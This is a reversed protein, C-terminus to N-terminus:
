RTLKLEATVATAPFYITGVWTQGSNNTSMSITGNVGTAGYYDMALYQGDVQGNGEATKQNLLNYEYYALNVGEQSVMLISVKQGNLYLSWEGALDFEYQESGQNRNEEFDPEGVTGSAMATDEDLFDTAVNGSDDIPYTETEPNSCLGVLGIFVVFGGLVWLYNKAWWSKPKAVPPSFPRPNPQPQPKPEPIKTIIKELVKTLEGVDYNWRSSSLEQAHKLSLEKLDEPLETQDPMEAGNVLVPIVRLNRRLAESIEKRVWDDPKQIRLVGKSDSVKLWHPGIMALLVKSEGLAKAISEDFNLGAELTEVDYFINEQGFVQELKDKLRGSEGSTDERRYSIFIKGNSM